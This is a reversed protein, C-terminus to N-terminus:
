ELDFGRAYLIQGLVLLALDALAYAGAISRFLQQMQMVSLASEDGFFAPGTQLIILGVMLLMIVLYLGIGALVSWGLRSGHLHLGLAMGTMGCLWYLTMQLWMSVGMLHILSFGSDPSQDLLQRLSDMLQQPMCLGIVALIILASFTVFLLGSIVFTMWLRSRSVPLSHLVTAEPKFNNRFFSNWSDLITLLLSAAVLIMTLVGIGRQLLQMWGTADPGMLRCAAAAALTALYLPLLARGLYTLEYKMRKM